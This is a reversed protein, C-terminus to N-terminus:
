ISKTIEWLVISAAVAVNLSRMVSYQQISVTLTQPLIEKVSKIFDKPIGISENGLIVL